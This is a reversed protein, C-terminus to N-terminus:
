VERGESRFDDAIYVINDATNDGDQVFGGRTTPSSNQQSTIDAQNESRFDDAIYETANPAPPDDKLGIPQVNESESATNGQGRLLLDDRANEGSPIRGGDNAAKSKNNPFTNLKLELEQTFTGKNFTSTVWVVRYSVGKVKPVKPPYRFFEISENISLLGSSNLYDVPEKFDIEIFTQGGNANITFGDSGYFRNYVSNITDPSDIVLFDPDGLITVRAQAYSGPDYLSTVVSNQPFLGKSLDGQSPQPQNKNPELPISADGGKDNGKGDSRTDLTVNFYANNLEQEYKIIANNQGTYWYEYRKVPGYYNIEDNVYPSIVIPAQYPQIIYTIDYAYDGVKTDYGNVRVDASLNYWTIGGKPPRPNNPDDEEGEPDSDYLKTLAQKLYDSQLIILGIAQMISTDTKFKLTRLLSNPVAKTELYPNVKQKNTAKMPWQSKQTEDAISANRILENGQGKFVVSYTNALERVNDAVELKQQRNLSTLLGIITGDEDDGVLADFVNAATIQLDKTTRGKKNGFAIDPAATKAEINYIVAKGDIKFKINTIFVDYYREFIGDSNGSNDNANSVFSEKGTILKGNIDYGLFRIGIIFFQRSANKQQNANKTTSGRGLAENARKLNSLFSFGYPETITFTITTVNSATQTASSDTATKIKLNDIYYDYNFGPARKSSQNNIGGSQAILFAGGTSSAANLASINRRGSNVFSNYSEPTVMYLSLQYTYSALNSLPNDKRKGVRQNPNSPQKKSTTNIQPASGSTDMEGANDILQPALGSTDMEGPNDDDSGGQSIYQENQAETENAPGGVAPGDQDGSTQGDVNNDNSM